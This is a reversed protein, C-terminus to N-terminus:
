GSIAIRSGEKIGTSQLYAGFASSLRELEAFTLMKGMCSFAPRGAYQKCSTAMLDGLSADALRGIETPVDKPYSRLWPKDSIRVTATKAKPKPDASKRPKASPKAAASKGPAPAKRATKAATKGGGANTTKAM